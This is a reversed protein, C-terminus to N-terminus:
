ASARINGRCNAGVLHTALEAAVTSPVSAGDPLARLEDVVKDLEQECDSIATDLTMDEPPSNFHRSAGIGRTSTPFADGNRRYAWVQTHRGKKGAAFGRLLKQPLYHQNPGTM